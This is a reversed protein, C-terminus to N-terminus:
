KKVSDLVEAASTIRINFELQSGNRTVRYTVIDGIKYKDKTSIMDGICNIKDEGRGTIIDGSRMGAAYAPGNPNVIGVVAPDNMNELISEGKKVYSFGATPAKEIELYGMMKYDRTCNNQNMLSVATGSIGWGYSSCRVLKGTDQNILIQSQSACGSLFAILIAMVIKKM